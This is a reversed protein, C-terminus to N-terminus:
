FLDPSSLEPFFITQKQDNSCCNYTKAPLQFFLSFGYREGGGMGSPQVGKIVQSKLYSKM